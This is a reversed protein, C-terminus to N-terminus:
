PVIRRFSAYHDATYYCVDPTRLAGGCVIRKTGRDSAGPTQVTYEHYYGRAQVTLSRERNYFVVGDKDFPFPGGQRILRLTKQGQESLDSVAITGPSTLALGDRALTKGPVWAFALGCLCAILCSKFRLVLGGAGAM